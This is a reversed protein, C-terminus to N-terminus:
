IVEFIDKWTYGNNKKDYAHVFLRYKGPSYNVTKGKQKKKLIFNLKNTGQDIQVLQFGYWRKRSVKGIIIAAGPVEVILTKGGKISNGKTKNSVFNNKYKM